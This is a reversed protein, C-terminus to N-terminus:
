KPAGQGPGQAQLFAAASRAYYQAPLAEPGVVVAHEDLKAVAEALRKMLPLAKRRDGRRSFLLALELLGPLYEPQEAALSSLEREALKEEGRELLALARVHRAVADPPLPEPEIAKASRVAAAPADVPEVPKAARVAAAPADVPRLAGLQPTVRNPKAVARTFVHPPATELRQLGPHPEFYDM